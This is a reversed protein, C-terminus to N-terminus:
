PGPITTGAWLGNAKLFDIVANNFAEPDEINCAHGTGPLVVHRAGPVGAATVTGGPLSADHAGNIVLTPVKMDKLRGSMDCNFRALLEQAIATPSLTHANEAFISLIWRGHPTDPFGPAVVEVLFDEIVAKV